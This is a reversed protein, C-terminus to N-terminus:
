GRLLINALVKNCACCKKCESACHAPPKRIRTRVIALTLAADAITATNIAHRAAISVAASLEGGAADFEDSPAGNM